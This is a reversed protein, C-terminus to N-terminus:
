ISRDLLATVDGPEGPQTPPIAQSSVFVFMAVIYIIAAVVAAAILARRPIRDWVTRRPAISQMPKDASVRSAPAIATGDWQEPRQMEYTVTLVGGPKVILMYLLLVLGIGVFSLLCGVAYQGGDWQGQAWAQGVPAYGQLTFVRSDEAFLQAAHDVNKAGYNRVVLRPPGEERNGM